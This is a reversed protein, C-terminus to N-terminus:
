AVVLLRQSIRLLRRFTGRYRKRTETNRGLASGGSKYAQRRIAKRRVADRVKQKVNQMNSVSSGNNGKNVVLHKKEGQPAALCEAECNTCEVSLVEQAYDKKEGIKITAKKNCPEM